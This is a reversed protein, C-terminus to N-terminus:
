SRDANNLTNLLEPNEFRNGIVTYGYQEVYNGINFRPAQYEVAVIEITKDSSVRKVIDGEYIPKNHKDYLGTFQMFELSIKDISSFASGYKTISFSVAYKSNPTPLFNFLMEKKTKDWARFKIERMNDKLYVDGSNGDAM